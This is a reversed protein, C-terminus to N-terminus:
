EGFAAYCVDYSYTVYNGLEDQGPRGPCSKAFSRQDGAPIGLTTRWAAYIRGWDNALDYQVAQAAHTPHLASDKSAMYPSSSHANQRYQSRHPQWSLPNTDSWRM